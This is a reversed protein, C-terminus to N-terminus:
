TLDKSLFDVVGDDRIDMSDSEVIVTSACLEWFRRGLKDHLPHRLYEILAPEDSFELIATYQYTMDGFNRGYGADISVSRGVSAKGVSEVSKCTDVIEQAFSRITAEDLGSKPTFLVIHAIM